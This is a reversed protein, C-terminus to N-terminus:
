SRSSELFMEYANINVTDPPNVAPIFGLQHLFTDKLKATVRKVQADYQADSVALFLVNGIALPHLGAQLLQGFTNITAGNYGFNSHPFATTRLYNVNEQYNNVYWLTARKLAIAEANLETAATVDAIDAHLKAMQDHAAEFETTRLD